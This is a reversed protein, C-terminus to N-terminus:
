TWDEYASFMIELQSKDFKIFTDADLLTQFEELTDCEFVVCPAQKMGTKYAVVASHHGDWIIYEGDILAVCTPHHVGPHFGSIIDQAHTPDFSERQKDTIKLKDFDVYQMSYKKNLLSPSEDIDFRTLNDLFSETKLAVTKRNNYYRIERTKTM